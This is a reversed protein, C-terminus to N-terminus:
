SISFLMSILKLLKSMSERTYRINLAHMCKKSNTLMALAWIWKGYVLKVNINILLQQQKEKVIEIVICVRQGQHEQNDQHLNLLPLQSQSKGRQNRLFM